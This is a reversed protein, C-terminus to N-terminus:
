SDDTLEPGPPAIFYGQAYDVGFRKLLQLTEDSEVFEAVTQKGMGRAVEVLAKTFVQDEHSTTLERIFAGDLKVYDVALQKLYYFSSFGVGFDDLAFKCGLARIEDVLQSAASIDEVAATETIEFILRAPEIGSSQLLKKLLEPLEPDNVVRGSLNVALAIDRGEAQFRALQDMAKTLVLRDIEHIQGSSEAVPIFFGPPVIDGNADLMRILVEYHSINDTALELIPQYHLVFRDERLAQDIRQKWQFAYTMNELAKDDASFVHWKKRSDQKAKYMALDANAMLAHLNDGQEPFCVIGISCGTAHSQGDAKWTLESIQEHIKRALRTAGEQDCVPVILAFEDGGLRSLRDTERIHRQIRDAVKKLMLDGALHGITDNIMKFNDLDIILLAGMQRYRRAVSLLREFERQFGRRNLTETLPDHDAAWALKKEALIRDTIDLGVALLTADGATAFELRSHLWSIMRSNGSATVIWADKKLHAVEGKGLMAIESLLPQSLAQDQLLDVFNRQMLDTENYGTEREAFDNASLIRGREDHTLILVQATDMLNQSFDREIKLRDRQQELEGTYVGVQNELAELQDSLSRAAAGLISIEDLMRPRSSGSALASKVRDFESEALSPLIEALRQLRALPNWLVALLLGVSVLLGALGAVVSARTAREIQRLAITLDRIVVFRLSNDSHENDLDLAHFQYDHDNMALTPYRTALAQLPYETAIGQLLPINLEPNSVAVISTQWAEIIKFSSAGLQPNQRLIALDSNTVQQFALVLEAISRGLLLSGITRGEFLLPSIVYQGCVTGCFFLSVPRESRNMEVNWQQARPLKLPEDGFLPQKDPGLIIAEEIGWELALLHMNDQLMAHLDALYQDSSAAAERKHLLPTAVALQQMERFGKDILGRLEILQQQRQREQQFDYQRQLQHYGIYSLVANIIALVLTFLLAVKWKLSLFRLGNRKKLM